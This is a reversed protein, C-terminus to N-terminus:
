NLLPKSDHILIGNAAFNRAVPINLSFIYGKYEYDRISTIRSSEIRRYGNEFRVFPVGNNVKLQNGCMFRFDLREDWDFFAIREIKLGGRANSLRWAADEARDLDDYNEGNVSHLPYKSEAYYNEYASLAVSNQGFNDRALHGFCIHEKTLHLKRGCDANIELLSGHFDAKEIKAVPFFQTVGEGAGGLVFDGTVVDEIKKDGEPTTVLTGAALGQQNRM